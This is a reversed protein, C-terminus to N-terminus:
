IKQSFIMISQRLGFFVASNMLIAAMSMFLATKQHCVIDGEFSVTYIKITSQIIRIEYVFVFNMDLKKM